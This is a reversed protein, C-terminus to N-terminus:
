IKPRDIGGRMVGLRGSSMAPAGRGGRPAGNETHACSRRSNWRKRTSWVRGVRIAASTDGVRLLFSYRYRTQLGASVVISREIVRRSIPIVTAATSASGARPSLASSVLGFWPDAPGNPTREPVAPLLIQHPSSTQALAALVSSTYPRCIRRSPIRERADFSIAVNLLAQEWIPITASSGLLAHERLPAAM